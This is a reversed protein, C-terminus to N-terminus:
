PISLKRKFTELSERGDVRIRKLTYPHSGLDITGPQTTVAGLFGASRVAELVRDNYEGAPYCFSLVDQGTAESLAKKSDAIERDLRDQSVLRLDPHMHTHCGVTYGQDVLETIQEWSLYGPDGVMGTIVFITATLGREELIPNANRYFCDYGDDFTLVVAKPPLAAQEGAMALLVTDLSVATYGSAVLADMQQAFDEPTVTLGRAPRGIQHYMLIPLSYTPDYQSEPRVPAELLALDPEGPLSAAADNLKGASVGLAVGAALCATMVWRLILARRKGQM